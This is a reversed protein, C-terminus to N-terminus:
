QSTKPTLEQQANKSAASAKAKASQHESSHDCSIEKLRNQIAKLIRPDPDKLERVRYLTKMLEDFETPITRRPM